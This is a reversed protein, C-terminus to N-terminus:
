DKEVVTYLVQYTVFKPGSRGNSSIRLLKVNEGWRDRALRRARALCSAAQQVQRPPRPMEWEGEVRVNRNGDSEWVEERIYRM